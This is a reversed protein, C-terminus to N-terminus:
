SALACQSRVLTFTEEVQVADYLTLRVPCTKAANKLKEFDADSLNGKITYAVIIKAIKRPNATMEKQLEFSIEELAMDKNQAFMTMIVTACAGFSVACLDTPSFSSGDGGNDKPAVLTFRTGSEHVIELTTPSLSKGKMVVAM